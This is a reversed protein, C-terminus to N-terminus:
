FTLGHSAAFLASPVFIVAATAARKQTEQAQKRSFGTASNATMGERERSGRMRWEQRTHSWKLM